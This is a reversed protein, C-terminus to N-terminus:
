QNAKVSLGIQRALAEPSSMGAAMLIAVPVPQEPQARLEINGPNELFSGVAEAISAALEAGVFPSLQPPIANRAQAILEAPTSGFKKAAQDLLKNTLSDDVFRIAVGHFVLQQMLGLMAMGQMKQSESDGDQMTKTMESMTRMFEPTYGSFDMTIGLIGADNVTFDYRSLIVRGDSAQWSGEMAMSGSIQSYGMEELTAKGDGDKMWPALQISFNEAAANMRMTKDVESTEVDAHLNDVSAISGKEGTVGVHGVALRDYRITGGFPDSSADKPLVLGEVSLDALSVTVDGDSRELESMALMGIRFSGDAEETVDQLTLDGLPFSESEGIPKVAVGTLTVDSGDLSAGDYSLEIQQQALLTKLREAVDKAELAFAPSAGALLGALLLSPLLHRKM